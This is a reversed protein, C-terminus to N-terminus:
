HIEVEMKALLALNKRRLDGIELGGDLQSNTVLKWKALHNMKNGEHGEWFFNRMIREM